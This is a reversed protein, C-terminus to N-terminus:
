EEVEKYKYVYGLALVFFLNLATPPLWLGCEICGYICWMTLSCKIAYQFISSKNMKNICNIIMYYFLVLGIIGIQVFISLPGMEYALGNFNSIGEPGILWALISDSSVLSKIVNLLGETRGSMSIWGSLSTNFLRNSVSPIFFLAALVACTILAILNIKILISKKTNDKFM